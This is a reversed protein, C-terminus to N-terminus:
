RSQDSKSRCFQSKQSKVSISPIVSHLISSVANRFDISIIKRSIMKRFVSSFTHRVVFDVATLNGRNLRRFLTALLNEFINIYLDLHKSSVLYYPDGFPSHTPIHFTHTSRISSTKKRLSEDKKYTKRDAFEKKKRCRRSKM